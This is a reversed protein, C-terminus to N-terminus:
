SATVDKVNDDSNRDIYFNYPDVGAFAPKAKSHLVIRQAGNRLPKREMTVVDKASFAGLGPRATFLGVEIPEALRTKTEEGKGNAYYKDAGVTLTTTWGTADRRTSADTVKLDYLTIKEFLDSILQQQEATKAEKRFEDLLDVSRLYPPGKFRFRADFRALARNVAAEGLREQLLYMAVSGKNYHIYQQNEVRELPVEEVAEGARRRLYNDLEYKLFRRIKDPGYLHKMVMLASYQALTESTVTGGQMDAGIVQHAWYQHAIEHAIVYTTFDIKEPDNTNAVFGISESYPMTGAFAQAFSAYGPFEIIRAYNFQYPGFNARYYDLATGMARLMKPVNWEHGDHYYVSM